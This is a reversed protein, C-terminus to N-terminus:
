LAALNIPLPAGLWLAHATHDARADGTEPHVLVSLGCRSLMLWPVVEGFRALPFGVHLEPAPHPGGATARRTGPVVGFRAVLEALLRDATARGAADTWYLHAHFSAPPATM